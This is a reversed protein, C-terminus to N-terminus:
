FKCGEYSHGIVMLWRIGGVIRSMRIIGFHNNTGFLLTREPHPGIWCRLLVGSVSALGGGFSWSVHHQSVHNESSVEVRVHWTTVHSRAPWISTVVVAPLLWVAPRTNLSTTSFKYSLWHRWFESCGYQMQLLEESMPECCNERENM